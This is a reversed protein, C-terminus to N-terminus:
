KKWTRAEMQAAATLALVEDGSLVLEKNEEACADCWIATTIAKSEGRVFGNTVVPYVTVAGTEGCGECKEISRDSIM